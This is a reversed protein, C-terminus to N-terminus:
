LWSCTQIRPFRFKTSVFLSSSTPSLRVRDRLKVYTMWVSGLPSMAAHLQQRLGLSSPTPIDVM